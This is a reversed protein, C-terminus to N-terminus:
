SRSNLFFNFYCSNRLLCLVTKKLKCKMLFQKLTVDSVRTKLRRGDQSIRREFGMVKTDEGLIDFDRSVRLLSRVSCLFMLRLVMFWVICDSRM